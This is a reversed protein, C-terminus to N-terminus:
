APRIATPDVDVLAQCYPCTVTDAIDSPAVGTREVHSSGRLPIDRGCLPCSMVSGTTLGGAEAPKSRDAGATRGGPVPREDSFPVEAGCAPCQVLHPGRMSGRALDSVANGCRPCRRVDPTEM